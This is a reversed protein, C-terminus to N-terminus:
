IDVGGDEGDDDFSDRAGTNKRESSSDNIEYDDLNFHDSHDKINDPTNDDRAKDRSSTLDDIISPPMDSSKDIIEYDGNKKKLFIRKQYSWSHKDSPSGSFDEWKSSQLHAPFYALSAIGFVCARAYWCNTRYMHSIAVLRSEAVASLPALSRAFLQRGILHAAAAGGVYAFALGPLMMPLFPLMLIPLFLPVGFMIPLVQGVSFDAVIALDSVALSVRMIGYSVLALCGEQGGASRMLSLVWNGNIKSVHGRVVEEMAHKVNPQSFRLMAADFSLASVAFVAGLDAIIPADSPTVFKSVFKELGAAGFVTLAFSKATRSVVPM